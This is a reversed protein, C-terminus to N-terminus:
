AALPTAGSLASSAAPSTLLPANFVDYDFVWSPDENTRLWTGEHSVSQVRSTRTMRNSEYLAFADPYDSVGVAELCRTLMAADEIAMAAAQAMYPKMPHCADGLLAFRGRSWLPLRDREFLPWKTVSPSINILHQVDAHFGSFAERMEERSSGMMAVGVPWDAQPVGTVYHYENREGSVYYALIHRDNSWWKACMDYSKYGLLSAPLVARHAVHGTYRPAEVGLLHERVKSNLGDAGIVLDATDVTGDTFTMRVNCGTDVVSHLCKGFMITGPAVRSTLLAHFDGRHVTLYSAGYAKVAREGLPIGATPEATKWHRSFWFDPHSGMADLADECGIRRMVKMVNPGLHVGANLGSFARAQEYLKVDFGSGQLLAAATTGGLGAGIVAIRTKSM